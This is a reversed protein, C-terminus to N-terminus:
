MRTWTGTRTGNTDNAVVDNDGASLIQGGSLAQLGRKNHQIENRSIRVIANTGVSQIGIGAGNPDFGSDTIASGFVNAVATGNAGGEAVIGKLNSDIDSARVTARVIGNGTPRLLVGAGVHDDISSNRITARVTGGSPALRVGEAGSGHIKSRDIILRTPARQVDVAAQSGGFIRVNDLVVTAGNLVSVGHAGLNAAVNIRLDRLVVKGRNPLDVTVAAGFPSITSQTGNGDITIPKTIIVSSYNGPTIANIEGNPTSMDHARQFTQCPTERLCDNADSGAERDVYTRSAQASATAPVVAALILVAGIARCLRGLRPDM